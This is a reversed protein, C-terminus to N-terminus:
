LVKAKKAYHRGKRKWASIIKDIQNPRLYSFSQPANSNYGAGKLTLPKVLKHVGSIEFAVAGKCGKFYNEYSRKDIGAGKSAHRWLMYPTGTHIKCIDVFAVIRCVPRTSYIAIRLDKSFDKPVIKRFEFRKKKSLIKDVYEPHISLLIM